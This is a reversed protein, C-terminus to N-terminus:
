IFIHIGRLPLSNEEVEKKTYEYVSTLNILAFFLSVTLRNIIILTQRTITVNWIKDFAM